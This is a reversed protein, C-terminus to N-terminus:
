EAPAPKLRADHEVLYRMTNAVSEPSIRDELRRLRDGHFWAREEGELVLVPAGPATYTGRWRMWVAGDREAPGELLQVQRTAFRRDFADLSGKFGTMIAARGERIGGLPPDAITEYVADATFFPEVVSWDDSLFAEEFAQAYALFRAITDM